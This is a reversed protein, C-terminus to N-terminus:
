GQSTLRYWVVGLALPLIVLIVVNRARDSFRRMLVLTLGAPVAYVIASMLGLIVFLWGSAIERPRGGSSGIMTLGGIFSNNARLWIAFTLPVAIAAVVACIALLRGSRIGSM